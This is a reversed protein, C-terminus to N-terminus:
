APDRGLLAALRDLAPADDAVPVPAAFPSHGAPIRELLGTTALIEAEVVDDAFRAQQGTAQALDWGHVLTEVLRLHVAVVGPVRGIPLDIVCAMAGPAAFTAELARASDLFRGPLTTPDQAALGSDLAASDLAAPDLAAPDVSGGSLHAAFIRNGVVEHRVLGAVDLEPCPTPATWDTVQEMLRHGEDHAPGLATLPEM